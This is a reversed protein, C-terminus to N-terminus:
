ADERRAQFWFGDLGSNGILKTALANLTNAHCLNAVSFRAPIALRYRANRGLLASGPSHLSRDCYFSMSM